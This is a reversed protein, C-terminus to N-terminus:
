IKQAGDEGGRAGTACFSSFQLTWETTQSSERVSLGPRGGDTSMPPPRGQAM